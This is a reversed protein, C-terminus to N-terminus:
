QERKQEKGALFAGCIEQARQFLEQKDKWEDLYLPVADEERSFWTIQRKAYRRSEQKIQEVAEQLSIEGRFYPFLEKYGIAQAATPPNECSSCFDFLNKAEKLLGQELMLDVRQEIRRYLLERDHYFLVLMLSRYPPETEKSRKAQNSFPEGTLLCYELARAVRKVNNPHIELAGAPDLQQLEEYLSLAGEQEARQLLTERLADQRGHEEFSFGRLLARAYLGTGGVLIPLKGRASIDKIANGAEKVYDSVSFNETLPLFDILHHPIERREAETPQATGIPLGCYIQMSDCSIIEGHFAKALFLGLSTKGTATPGTVALVQKKEEM